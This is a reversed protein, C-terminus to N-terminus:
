TKQRKKVALINAQSFQSVPLSYREPDLPELDRSDARVQSIEFRNERLIKLFERYDGGFNQIGWPWLEVFLMLDRNLKLMSQAGKLCMLEAGEIDIKIFTPMPLSQEAAITDLRATRVSAQGVGDTEPVNSPSLSNKGWNHGDMVLGSTGDTDSLAMDRVIVNKVSNDALNLKLLERCRPDPEFAIVKGEPGVARSAILSFIGINAGIDYFVDKPKLLRKVLSIEYSEYEGWLLLPKAVGVDKVNLNITLDEMKVKEVGDYAMSHYLVEFGQRIRRINYLRTKKVLRSGIILAKLRLKM